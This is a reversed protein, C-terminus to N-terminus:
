PFVVLAPRELPGFPYVGDVRLITFQGFDANSQEFAEVLNAIRSSTINKFDYLTPEDCWTAAPESSRRGM